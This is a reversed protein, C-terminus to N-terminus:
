AESAAGSSAQPHHNYREAMMKAVAVLASRQKPDSISMFVELLEVIDDGFDSQAAPVPLAAADQRSGAAILLDPRIELANAIAILRSAAIRTTGVEYRHLQAGTVGIRRALDKQTRGQARRLERIERGIAADSLTTSRPDVSALANQVHFDHRAAFKAARDEQEAIRSMIAVESRNRPSMGDRPLGAAFQIAATTM